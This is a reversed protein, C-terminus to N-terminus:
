KAMYEKMTGSGGTQLFSYFALIASADKADVKGDGNVDAVRRQKETLGDEEGTSLKAYAILM